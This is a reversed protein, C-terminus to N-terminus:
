LSLIFTNILHNTEDISTEVLVSAVQGKWAGSVTIKFILDSPSGSFPYTRPYDLSKNAAFAREM